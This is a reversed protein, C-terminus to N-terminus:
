KEELARLEALGEPGVDGPLARFLFSFTTRSIEFAGSMSSIEERCRASFFFTRRGIRLRLRASSRKRAM